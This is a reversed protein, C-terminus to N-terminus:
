IKRSTNYCEFHCTQRPKWDYCCYCLYLFLSVQLFKESYSSCVNHPLSCRSKSTLTVSSSTVALATARVFLLFSARVYDSNHQWPNVKMKCLMIIIIAQIYGKPMLKKVGLGDGTLFIGNRKLSPPLSRFTQSNGYPGEGCCLCPTNKTM